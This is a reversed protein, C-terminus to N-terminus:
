GEKAGMSSAIQSPNPFLSLDCALMFPLDSLSDGLGLALAAESFARQRLWAVAERKGIHLPLVSLHRGSCALKLGEGWRLHLWEAAEKVVSAPAEQGRPWHAVALYAFSGIRETSVQGGKALKGLDRAAVELGRQLPELAESVTLDWEHDLEGACSIHMGHDTVQWRSLNPLGALKVREMAARSRGTVPVLEAGGKELLELLALQQQSHWSHPSGTRDEAASPLGGERAMAQQEPPLKHITHFLTDDLDCFAVVRKRPSGSETM